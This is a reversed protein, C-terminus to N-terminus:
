PVKQNSDIEKNHLQLVPSSRTISKGARSLCPKREKPLNKLLKSDSSYIKRDYDSIIKSSASSHLEEEDESYDKAVDM